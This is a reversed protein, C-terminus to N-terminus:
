FKRHSFQVIFALQAQLPTPKDRRFSFYKTDLCYTCEDQDTMYELPIGAEKAQKIIIGKLDILIKADRAIFEPYDVFASLVAEKVEFHRACIGPGITLRINEKKGGAECINELTATIIGAAIGRWGCHALGIIGVESEEFFVPFCDAVTLALIIDPETTILADTEAIRFPSRKNVREVHAGHVQNAVARQLGSLRQKEFYRNHNAANEPLPDILPLYLSGDERTSIGKRIKYM